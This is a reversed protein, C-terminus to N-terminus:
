DTDARPRRRRLVQLLGRREWDVGRMADIVHADHAVVLARSTADLARRRELRTESGSISEM